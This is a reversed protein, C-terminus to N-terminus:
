ELSTDAAIGYANGFIKPYFVTQARKTAMKRTQKGCNM